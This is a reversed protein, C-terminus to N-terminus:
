LSEALSGNGAGAMLVAAGCEVVGAGEGNMGEVRVSVGAGGAGGAVGAVGAVLAARGAWCPPRWPRPSRGCRWSGTAGWGCTVVTSLM